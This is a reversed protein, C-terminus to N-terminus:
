LIAISWGPSRTSFSKLKMHGKPFNQVRAVSTLAVGVLYWAVRVILINLPTPLRNGNAVVAFTALIV